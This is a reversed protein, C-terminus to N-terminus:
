YTREPRIGFVEGGGEKEFKDICHICIRAFPKAKLREVSIWIGCSECRGYPAPVKGDLKDLARQIAQLDETENEIFQLTFDQEYQDGSTDALHNNSVRNDASLAESELSNVDSLLQRRRDVLATRLEAAERANVQRHHLTIPESGKSREVPLVRVAPAAQTPSVKAPKAAPQTTPRTVAIKSTSTKKPSSKSPVAATKKLTAKAKKPAPKSAAVTKGKAKNHQSTPKGKVSKATARAGKAIAKKQITKAPSTKRARASGKITKSKAM